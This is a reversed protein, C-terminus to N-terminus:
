KKMIVAIYDEAVKPTDETFKYRKMLKPDSLIKELGENKHSYVNVRHGLMAMELLLDFVIEKSPNIYRSSIDEIFYLGGVKLTSWNIQFTQLQDFPLHSGDDIIIDFYQDGWKTQKRSDFYNFDIRESESYDSIIKSHSGKWFEDIEVGTIYGQKFYRAWALLGYGSHVGIELLKIPNHKLHSIYHYYVRDYGRWGGRDTQDLRRGLVKPQTKIFDFYWPNFNLHSKLEDGCPLLDTYPQVKM